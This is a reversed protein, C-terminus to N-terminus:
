ASAWATSASLRREPITKMERSWRGAAVYIVPLGVFLRGHESSGTGPPMISTTTANATSLRMARHDPSALDRQLKARTATACRSTQFTKTRLQPSQRQVHTSLVSGHCSQRSLQGFPVQAPTGLRRRCFAIVVLKGRRYREEALFIAYACRLQQDVAAGLVQGIHVGITGLPIRRQQILPGCRGSVSRLEHVSVSLELAHWSLAGPKKGGTWM